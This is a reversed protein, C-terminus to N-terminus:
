PIEVIEFEELIVAQEAGVVTHNGCVPCDYNEADPETYDRTFSRCTTCWGLSAEVAEDYTVRDIPPPTM